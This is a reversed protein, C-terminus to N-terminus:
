LVLNVLKRPVIIFKKIPKNQIWPKLKEDACVLEKLRDETIDAPVDIKSRLKGNLQIIITVTEEVLLRPDFKPWPQKIVSGEQELIQWLEEAFHPVFPSLLLILVKFTEKDAGLQYIANTLEMISAIATNFKFAEM